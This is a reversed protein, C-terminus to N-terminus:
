NCNSVDHLSYRIIASIVGTVVRVIEKFPQHIEFSLPNAYYKFPCICTIFEFPLDKSHSASM